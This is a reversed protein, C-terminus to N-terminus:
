KLCEVRSHWDLMSISDEEVVQFNMKVNDLNINIKSLEDLILQKVYIAKGKKVEYIYVNYEEIGDDNNCNKDVMLKDLNAYDLCGDDYFDPLLSKGDSYDYDQKILLKQKRLEKEVRSVVLEILDKKLEGYVDKQSICNSYGFGSISVLNGM